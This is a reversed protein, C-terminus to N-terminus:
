AWRRFVLTANSGGFGISNSLALETRADMPQRVLPFRCVPDLKELNPQPPLWQERLVMLCVAAEVAGAAGLLHGISAKTSSVPLSGVAPGAWDNIARAESSDNHPTGTGHANVYGIEAPDVRAQACAREMAHRAASGDPRPQTLHHTDTTSGYGIIEGLITAGRSRAMELPELALIAAGEGLGLGDRTADFPRCQTASMAQLSDFGNFVMRCLVDYGGALARPAQGHRVLDFAHGIANTGSACANSIMTLPGELGLASSFLVGQRQVQYHVTRTPQKRLRGPTQLAQTLYEEGLMMGGCTTALVSATQSPKSWGAQHFAEEGAALLLRTGRDLRAWAKASFGNQRLEPLQDVEAARRCRQRSVDFRTVPRFGSRGIRFGDANTRWGVGLATIIGLGTVVVRRPESTSPCPFLM